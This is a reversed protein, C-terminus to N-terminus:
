LRNKSELNAIRNELASIRREQESFASQLIQVVLGAGAAGSREGKSILILSDLLAQASVM